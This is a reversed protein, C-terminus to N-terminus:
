YVGYIFKNNEKLGAWSGGKYEWSLTDGDASFIPATVGTFNRAAGHTTIVVWVNWGVLRDDTLAGAKGGTEGSGLTRTTNYTSDFVVFGNSNFIQLGAAM